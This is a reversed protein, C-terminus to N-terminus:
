KMGVYIGTPDFAVATIDREAAAAAVDGAGEHGFRREVVVTKHKYDWMRLLGCASGLILRYANPHVACSVVTDCPEDRIVRSEHLDDGTTRVHVIQGAATSM